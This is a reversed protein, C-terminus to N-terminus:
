KGATEAAETVAGAAQAELEGNLFKVLTGLAELSLDRITQSEMDPISRKVFRVTAELTEVADGRKEAKELEDAERNAEIFTEVTMDKVAYTRGGLRVEKSRRALDDLNLIQM